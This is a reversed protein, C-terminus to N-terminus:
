RLNMAELVSFLCCCQTHVSTKDFSHCQPVTIIVKNKRKVKYKYVGDEEVFKAAKKRIIRKRNEEAGEPYKNTSVYVFAEELLKQDAEEKEMNMEKENDLINKDRQSVM